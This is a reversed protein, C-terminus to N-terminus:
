AKVKSMAYAINVPLAEVHFASIRDSLVLSLAAMLARQASLRTREDSPVDPWEPGDIFSQLAQIRRDLDAKEEVVRMQYPAM